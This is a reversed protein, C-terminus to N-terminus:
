AARSGDSVGATVPGTPGEFRVEPFDEGAQGWDPGNPLDRRGTALEDCNTMVQLWEDALGNTRRPHDEHLLLYPTTAFVQPAGVGILQAMLYTDLHTFTDTREWYGRCRDWTDRRALLFDGPMGTHLQHFGHYGEAVFLGGDVEREFDHPRTRPWATVPVGHDVDTHEVPLVVGTEAFPRPRHHVTFVRGLAAEFIEAGALDRSLPPSFDHRDIRVFAGQRVPDSRALGLVAPFAIIDPNLVLITESSARRVGVNKGLYEFLPLGGPNDLSDHFAEPVSVVRVRTPREEPVLDALPPRDAPPNWEVLVVEVVLHTVAEGHALAKICTQLRGAFDGGYGDNRGVLVVSLDTDTV